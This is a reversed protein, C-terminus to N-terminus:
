QEGAPVRTAGRRQAAAAGARGAAAYRGPFQVRHRRVRRPRGTRGARLKLHREGVVRTSLIRFTGDFLPEAFGPGWPGGARLADATPLELEASALEGDTEVTDFSGQGAMVRACERDFERAFQDLRGRALTLGAAMAHGGFKAILQPHRVAVADLVDRIHVGPVSRASGRLWQADTAAFAVVPRRLQEKVRGAVLGVVGQHWAADFLCVGARQVESAPNRLARVAALAEGQMRAEIQRREVNLQDLQAALATAQAPEDTLLCHIGISMDTLRGAANLRPAVAFGLDSAVAEGQSRRAM